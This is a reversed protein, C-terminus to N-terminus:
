DARVGAWRRVLERERESLRAEPHLWLYPGMPMRGADIEEVMDRRLHQRREEDYDDWRTLDLYERGHNVHHAVLWSVPAVSGYWPWETRNSHCDFCSQRLVKAVEPPAEVLGNAPPPKRDLPVLQIAVVVAVLALLIRTRM